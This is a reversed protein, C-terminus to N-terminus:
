LLVLDDFMGGEILIGIKANELVGVWEHTSVNGFVAYQKFSRAKNATLILCAEIHGEQYEKKVLELVKALDEDHETVEYM